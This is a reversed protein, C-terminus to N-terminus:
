FVYKVWPEKVKRWFEELEDEVVDDSWEEAWAVEPLDSWIRWVDWKRRELFIRAFDKPVLEVM